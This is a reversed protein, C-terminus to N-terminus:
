ASPKFLPDMVYNGKIENMSMTKNIILKNRDFIKSVVKNM